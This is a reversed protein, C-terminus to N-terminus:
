NFYNKVLEAPLNGVSSASYVGSRAISIADEDLDTAFIIVNESKGGLVQDILIAISYAEEGTSCGVVWVRLVEDSDDIRNLLEIKLKEFADIDRFFSTVGILLDKYLFHSEEFNNQLYNVYESIKNIRLALMRRQIRRNITNTKYNSFDVGINQKLIGMIMMLDSQPTQTPRIDSIGQLFNFVDNLEDGMGIPDSIIDVSHDNISAMPMSDYKASQPDQVFTIGGEAKISKMGLSGDSGTGSLIIGIANKDHHYAISNFLLDISPKPLISDSAPTKLLIKDSEVFINKNPPTIYIIGGQLSAGHTAEKVKMGSHKQLLDVMMSKHTPSMHQAIIYVVQDNDPLKKVLEQLAELGGASAGVGVVIM